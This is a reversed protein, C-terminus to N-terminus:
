GLRRVASGHDRAHRCRHTEHGRTPQPPAHTPAAHMLHATVTGTRSPHGAVTRSGPRSTRPCTPASPRTCRTSSCRRTATAANPTPRSSPSSRRSLACRFPPRPRGASTCCTQEEVEHDGGPDIAQWAIDSLEVLDVDSLPEPIMAGVTRQVAGGTMRLDSCCDAPFAASASASPSRGFPTSVEASTSSRM